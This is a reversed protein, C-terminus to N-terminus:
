KGCHRKRWELPSMRNKQAFFRTFYSVASFGCQDSIQRVSLRTTELLRRARDMRLITLYETFSFGTGKHFLLAFYSVSLGSREALDSLKITSSSFNTCLYSLAREIEPAYPIGREYAPLAGDLRALAERATSSGETLLPGIQIHMGLIKETEWLAAHFEEASVGFSSSLRRLADRLSDNGAMILGRCLPHQVLNEQCLAESSPQDAASGGLDYYERPYFYPLSFISQCRYYVKRVEEYQCAASHAIVRCSVGLEERLAARTGLMLTHLLAPDVAESLFILADSRGVSIVNDCLFSLHKEVLSQIPGESEAPQEPFVMVLFSGAYHRHLIAQRHYEQLGSEGDCVYARLASAFAHENKSATERRHLSDLYTQAKRLSALIDDSTMTAKLLYATVDMDLISTVISFDELCTIIIIRCDRSVSRVNRILEQGTMGPMRLDTILLDAPAEQFAKWASLGDSYCSTVEMNLKSWPVSARIGAQILVEDEVIMATYM